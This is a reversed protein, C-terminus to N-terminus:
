NVSPDDPFHKIRTGSAFVRNTVAKGVHQWLDQAPHFIYTKKAPAIIWGGQTLEQELQGAGWGAYGSFLRLHADKFRVLQDLHERHAALYIGPIIEAESLSAQSHLALLPGKVPGGLNIPHDNDDGLHSWIDGFTRDSLRNLIVGFAGQEDHEIVLVVTHSFHPDVLQTSALLLQGKLSKMRDSGTWTKAYNKGVPIITDM